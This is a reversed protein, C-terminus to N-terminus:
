WDVQKTLHGVHVVELLGLGVELLELVVVLLHVLYAVNMVNKCNSEIFLSSALRIVQSVNSACPLENVSQLKKNARLACVCFLLQLNITLLDLIESSTLNIFV